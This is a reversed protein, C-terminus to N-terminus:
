GGYGSWVEGWNCDAGGGRVVIIEKREDANGVEAGAM